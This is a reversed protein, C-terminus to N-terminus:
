KDKLIDDLIEPTLGNRKAEESMEKMVQELSKGPEIINEFSKELQRKKRPNLSKFIKAARDSVKIEITEM